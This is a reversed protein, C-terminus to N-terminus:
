SFGYKKLLKDFEDKKNERVRELSPDEQAWHWLIKNKPELAYELHLLANDYKRFRSYYCALNYHARYSIAQKEIDEVIRAAKEVKKSEESSALIDAYLILTM